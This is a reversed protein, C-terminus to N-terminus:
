TPSRPGGTPSIMGADAPDSVATVGPVKGTDALVRELTRGLAPDTLRAGDPSRLVVRASQSEPGAFHREMKTYATQAPSGPVSSSSEFTGPFLIALMVVAGIIVAWGILIRYRARAGLAGLRYLFGAM